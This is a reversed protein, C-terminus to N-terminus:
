SRREEELRQDEFLIEFIRAANGSLAHTLRHALDSNGSDWALAEELDEITAGVDLIALLRHDAIDGVHRRVDEATLLTSAPKRIM